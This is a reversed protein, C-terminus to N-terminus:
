LASLTTEVFAGLLMKGNVTVMLDEGTRVLTWNNSREMSKALAEVLEPAILWVAIKDVNHIPRKERVRVLGDREKQCVVTVRPTAKSARHLREPGPCGVDIWHVVNGVADKVFLAPDDAECLGRGACLGEEHALCQALIRTVLRSLDESPHQAVRLELTEYVGADVNSVEVNVRFLTSGSAM